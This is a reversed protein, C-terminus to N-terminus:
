EVDALYGDSEGGIEDQGQQNSRTTYDDIVHTFHAISTAHESDDEQTEKTEGDNGANSSNSAVYTGYSEGPSEHNGFVTTTDTSNYSLNASATATSTECQSEISDEGVEVCDEVDGDYISEKEAIMKLGTSSKMDHVNRQYNVPKSIRIIIINHSAARNNNIDTGLSRARNM